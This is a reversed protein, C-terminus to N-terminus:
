HRFRSHRAKPPPEVSPHPRQAAEQAEPIDQFIPNQVASFRNRGDSDYRVFPVGADDHCDPSTSKAQAEETREFASGTEPGALQVSTKRCGFMWRRTQWRDDMMNKGVDSMVAM